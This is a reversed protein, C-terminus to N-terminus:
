SVLEPADGGAPQWAPTMGRPIQPEVEAEAVARRPFWLVWITLIPINVQVFYTEFLFIGIFYAALWSEMPRYPTVLLSAAGILRAAVFIALPLGGLLALELFANHAADTGTAEALLAGYSSGIGFPHRLVLDFATTITWWRDSANTSIAETDAFRRLWVSQTFDLHSLAGLLLVGAIAMLIASPVRYLPPACVLLWYALLGASVLLSGRSKTFYFVLAEIGVGLWLASRPLRREEVMGILIPIAILICGAAGNPHGFIGSARYEIDAPDTGSYIAVRVLSKPDMSEPHFGVYDYFVTVLSLLAGALLGLCLSFRNRHQMLLVLWYVAFCASFWRFLVRQLIPDPVRYSFYAEAVLWGFSLACITALMSAVRHLQKGQSLAAVLALAGLLNALDPLRPGSDEALPPFVVAPFSICVGFLFAAAATLRNPALAGFRETARTPMM